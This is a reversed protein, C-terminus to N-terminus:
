SIRQAVLHKQQEPDHIEFEEIAARIAAPQDPAFVTGILNGRKRILTIRWEHMQRDAAMTLARESFTRYRCLQQDLEFPAADRGQARVEFVPRSPTSCRKLRRRRLPDCVARSCVAHLAHVDELRLLDLDM